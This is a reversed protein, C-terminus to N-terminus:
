IRTLKIDSSRYFGEMKVDLNPLVTAISFSNNEVGQYDVMANFTYYHIGNIHHHTEIHKHDQFVVINKKIKRFTM